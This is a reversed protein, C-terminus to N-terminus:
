CGGAAVGLALDEDTVDGRADLLVLQQEEEVGEARHLREGDRAVRLRVLGLSEAVDDVVVGVDDGDDALFEVSDLDAVLREDHPGGRHLLSGGHDERAVLSDLQVRLDGHLGGHVQGVELRGEDCLAVLGPLGSGLQQLLSSEASSSLDLLRRWRADDHELVHDRPVVQLHSHRHHTLPLVHLVVQVDLAIYFRLARSESLNERDDDGSALVRAHAVHDDLIRTDLLSSSGDHSQNSPSEVLM